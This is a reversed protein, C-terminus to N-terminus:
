EAPQPPPPVALSEILLSSYLSREFIEAVKFDDLGFFKPSIKGKGEVPVPRSQQWNRPIPYRGAFLVFQSLRDLVDREAGTLSVGVKEALRGLQHDRAGPVGVYQGDVVLKQKGDRVWMAKLECEIAYGLLLAYVAYTNVDPRRLRKKVM